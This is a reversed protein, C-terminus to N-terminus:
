CNKLGMCLHKKLGDELKSLISIYPIESHDSSLFGHYFLFAEFKDQDLIL